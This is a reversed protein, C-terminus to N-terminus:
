KIYYLYIIAQYVPICIFQTGHKNEDCAIKCSEYFAASYYVTVVSVLRSYLCYLNLETALLSFVGRYKQTM